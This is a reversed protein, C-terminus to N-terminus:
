ALSDRPAIPACVCLFVLNHGCGFSGGVKKALVHPHRPALGKRQRNLERKRAASAAKHVRHTLKLYEIFRRSCEEETEKGTFNCVLDNLHRERREDDDEGDGDGFSMESDSGSSASSSSLSHISSHPVHSWSQLDQQQESLTSTAGAGEAAFDLVSALVSETLISDIDGFSGEESHPPALPGSAGFLLEEDELQLEFPLATPSLTESLLASNTAMATATPTAEILALINEDSLEDTTQSPWAITSTDTGISTSIITGTGTSTDTHASCFTSSTHQPQEFGVCL